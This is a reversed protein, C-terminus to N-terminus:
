MGSKANLKKYALKLGELKQIEYIGPENNNGLVEIQESYVQALGGSNQSSTQIKETNFVTLVGLIAVLIAAIWMFKSYPMKTIKRDQDLKEQIRNWAKPSPNAKHVLADKYFKNQNNTNM